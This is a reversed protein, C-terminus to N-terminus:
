RRARRTKAKKVGLARDAAREEAGTLPGGSEELLEALGKDMRKLQNELIGHVYPAAAFYVPEGERKPFRPFTLAKETMQM